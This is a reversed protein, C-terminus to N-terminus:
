FNEYRRRVCYLNTMELRYLIMNGLLTCDIEELDVSDVYADIVRVPNDEGIYDNLTNPLLKIQYITSPQLTM